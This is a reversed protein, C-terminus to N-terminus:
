KAVAPVGNREKREGVWGSVVVEELASVSPVEGEPGGCIEAVLM